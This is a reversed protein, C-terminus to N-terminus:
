DTYGREDAQSYDMTVQKSIKAGYIAGKRDGIGGYRGIVTGM